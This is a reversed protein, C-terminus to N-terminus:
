STTAAPVIVTFLGIVDVPVVVSLEVPPPREIMAAPVILEVPATFRVPEVPIEVAPLTVVVM